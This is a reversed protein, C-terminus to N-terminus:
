HFDLQFKIPVTVWSAQPIDGRKAPVFRWKKVASLASEDLLEHGSSQQVSLEGCEGDASVYVRLLVLGEWHQSRALSPYVPKPNNLYAANASAPTLPSNHPAAAHAHVPAPPAAPAPSAEQVTEPEEKKQELQKVESEKHVPKPKPKKVPNPVPKKVDRPPVPQPPTIPQAMAPAAPASLAIDIMALPAAETLPPLPPPRHTYWIWLLGHLALALLSAAAIAFSRQWTQPIDSGTLPVEAGKYQQSTPFFYM